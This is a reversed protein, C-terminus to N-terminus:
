PKAACAASRRRIGVRGLVWEGVTAAKGGPAVVALSVVKNGALVKRIHGLLEQLLVLLGSVPAAAPSAWGSIAPAKPHGPNTDPEKGAAPLLLLLLLLLLM